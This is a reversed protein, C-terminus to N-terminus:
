LGGALEVPDELDQLRERSIGVILFRDLGEVRVGEEGLVLSVPLADFPSSFFFFSFRQQSLSLSATRSIPTLELWSWGM